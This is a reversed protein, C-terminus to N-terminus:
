EFSSYPVNLISLFEDAKRNEKIFYDKIYAM